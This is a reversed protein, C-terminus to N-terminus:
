YYGIDLSNQKSKNYKNYSISDSPMSIATNQWDSNYEDFDLAMSWKLLDTDDVEPVGGADINSKYEYDYNEDSFAKKIDSKFEDEYERKYENDHDNDIWNNKSESRSLARSVAKSGAISHNQYARFVFICSFFNFISKFM